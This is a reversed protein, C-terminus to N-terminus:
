FNVFRWDASPGEKLRRVADKEDAATLELYQGRKSGTEPEQHIHVSLTIGDVTSTVKFYFPM